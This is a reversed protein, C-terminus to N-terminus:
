SRDLALALARRTPLGTLVPPLPHPGILLDDHGALHLQAGTVGLRALVGLADFEDCGNLLLNVQGNAAVVEDTPRLAGAPVSGGAPLRVLTAIDSRASRRRAPDYGVARIQHEVM